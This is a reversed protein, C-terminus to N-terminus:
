IDIQNASCLHLVCIEGCVNIFYLKDLKVLCVRFVYGCDQRGDGWVKLSM